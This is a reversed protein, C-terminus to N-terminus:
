EDVLSYIAGNLLHIRNILLNKLAISYIKPESVCDEDKTFILDAGISEKLDHNTMHDVCNFYAAVYITNSEIRSLNYEIKNGKFLSNVTISYICETGNPFTLAIKTEMVDVSEIFLRDLDRNENKLIYFDKLNEINFVKNSIPKIACKRECSWCFVLFIIIM